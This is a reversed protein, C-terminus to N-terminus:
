RQAATPPPVLGRPQLTFNIKGITVPANPYVVRSAQTTGEYRLAPQNKLNAAKFAVDLRMSGCLGAPTSNKVDLKTINRADFPKTPKHWMQTNLYQAIERKIQLNVPVPRAAQATLPLLIAACVALNRLMSLTKM